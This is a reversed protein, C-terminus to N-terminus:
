YIINHDGEFDPDVTVGGQAAFTLFTGRLLTHWNRRLPVMIPQSQAVRVGEADYVAVRVEVEADAIDNIFVYDFGMSAESEGTITLSSRFTVGTAADVLEDDFASYASPLFSSYSFLVEYEDARARTDLNRRETEHDLFESLDTTVFEFKAMPRRMPIVTEGDGRAVTGLGRFTDHLETCARYDGTDFGIRHFDADDYFPADNETELLDSWVVLECDDSPLDAMEFDCDYGEAADRLFREEAVLVDRRGPAYARVVYRMAGRDVAGSYRETTGPHAADVGADPYLEEIVGARPDYLHEWLWFDPEYRLSIRAPTRQVPWQHVPCGCLLLTVCPIALLRLVRRMM